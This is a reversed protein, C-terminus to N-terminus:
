LVKITPLFLHSFVLRQSISYFLILAKAWVVMVINLYLSILQLHLKMVLLANVCVLFLFFLSSIENLHERLTEKINKFLTQHWVPHTVSMIFGKSTMKLARRCWNIDIVFPASMSTQLLPPWRWNIDIVSPTSTM